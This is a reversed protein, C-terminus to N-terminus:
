ASLPNNSLTPNPELSASLDDSAAAKTTTTTPTSSGARPRRAPLEAPITPGFIRSRGTSPEPVAQEHAFHVNGIRLVTIIQRHGRTRRHNKRRKFKFTIVKAARTQEEVTAEVFAEQLLPTGIATFDQSGVMLVKKLHIHSGVDALLKETIILDGKCVKYQRGAVHVIAFSEPLIHLPQLVEIQRIEELHSTHSQEDTPTLTSDARTTASHTPPPPTTLPAARRGGRTRSGIPRSSSSHLAFTSRSLINTTQCPAKSTWGLPGARAPGLCSRV